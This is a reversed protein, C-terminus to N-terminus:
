KSLNDLNPINVKALRNILAVTLVEKLSTFDSTKIDIGADKFAFRILGKCVIPTKGIKEALFDGFVDVIDM